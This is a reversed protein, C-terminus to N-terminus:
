LFLYSKLKNIRINRFLIWINKFIMRVLTHWIRGGCALHGPPYFYLDMRWIKHVFFLCGVQNKTLLFIITLTKISLIIPNEKKEKWIVEKGRDIYRYARRERGRERVIDIQCM